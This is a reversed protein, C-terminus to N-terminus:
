IGVSYGIVQGLEEKANEIYKTEAPPGHDDFVKVEEEESETETDTKLEERDTKSDEDLGLLWIM